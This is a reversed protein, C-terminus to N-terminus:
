LKTNPLGVHQYRFISFNSNGGIGFRINANGGVLVGLALWHFIPQTPDGPTPWTSKMNNTSMENPTTVLRSGLNCHFLSKLGMNWQFSPYGIRIFDVCFFSSIYVALM